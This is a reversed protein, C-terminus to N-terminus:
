HARIFLGVTLAAGLIVIGVRLAKENVRRLIYVGAVGGLLAGVALVGIRAYDLGPMFLFYAAASANMITALVNKTAGATRVAQGAITLSAMMLFGIGGGYYGGYVGILFQIFLITRPGYGGQHPESPAKRFFSGWTFLSTAALVLWPLLRAFFAPPTAMLLMAGILGGALSVAMLAKLSVAGLGAAGKRGMVGANIQGPFLAITSTINAARADLGTLMLAPLTVFSGGGALANQAGAWLAAGFLISFSVLSPTSTM